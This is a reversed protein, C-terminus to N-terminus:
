PPLTKKEGEKREEGRGEGRARGRQGRREGRREGRGEGKERVEGGRGRGSCTQKKKLKAFFLNCFNRFIIGANRKPKKPGDLFDLVSRLLGSLWSTRAGERRGGGEERRGERREGGEDEGRGEV